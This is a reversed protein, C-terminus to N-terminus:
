EAMYKIFLEFVENTLKAENLSDCIIQADQEPMLRNTVVIQKKGKVVCYLDGIAAIEYQNM